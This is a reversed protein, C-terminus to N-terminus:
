VGDYLCEICTDTNANTMVTELCEKCLVECDDNTAFEKCDSHYITVGGGHKVIKVKKCDIILRKCDPCIFDKFSDVKNYYDNFQALDTVDWRKWFPRAKRVLEKYSDADVVEKSSATLLKPDSVDVITQNLEKARQIKHKEWCEIHSYIDKPNGAHCYIGMLKDKVNCYECQSDWNNRIATTAIGPLSERWGQNNYIATAKPPTKKWKEPLERGLADFVSVLQEHNEVAHKCHRERVADIPDVDPEELGICAALVTGTRGHSGICWLAVRAGGKAFDNMRQAMIRLKAPNPASFDKIPFWMLLGLYDVVMSGVTFGSDVLPVLVDFKDAQAANMFKDATPYLTFNGVKCGTEPKHDHDHKDSVYSTYSTTTAGKSYSKELRDYWGNYGDDHDDNVKSVTSKGKGIYRLHGEATVAFDADPISAVTAIRKTMKHTKKRFKKNKSGMESILESVSYHM